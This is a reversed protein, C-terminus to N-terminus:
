YTSASTYRYGIFSKTKVSILTQHNAKVETEVLPAVMCSSCKPSNTKSTPKCGTEGACCCLRIVVAPALRNAARRSDWFTTGGLELEPEPVPTNTRDELSRRGM